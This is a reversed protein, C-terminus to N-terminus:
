LKEAVEELIKPYRIISDAVITVPRCGRKKLLKAAHYNAGSTPGGHIGRSLLERMGHVADESSVYLVEDIVEEELARQLLESFSHYSFGEMLERDEHREHTLMEQAYSGKPLIAFIRMKNREKLYKGAGYVTGGTGAGMVFCDAVKGQSAIEPGTSEYHAKFNAMNSTQHLYVGGLEKALKEAIVHGDEEERVVRVEGGFAKILNVKERSTGEPVLIVARYGLIRSVWAVSIGTNGSTYEIVADGKKLGKRKADRIMYLATRDKHSGTPNYYELKLYIGNVNVMPTNGVLNLIAM